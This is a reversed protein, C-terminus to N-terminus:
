KSNIVNKFIGETWGQIKLFLAVDMIYLDCVGYPLARRKSKGNIVQYTKYFQSAPLNTISQWYEEAESINLHEHIHIYGKIKAPSIKCIKTFYKMMLLIMKPDGNSFRVMRQTKGGEAWYLSTGILWLERDSIGDIENSASTVLIARKTAENNIRSLRRKEISEIDHGKSLITKKIKPDIEIGSLWLSATSKSINLKESIENLSYGFYRLEIAKAKVNKNYTM